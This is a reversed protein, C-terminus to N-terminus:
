KKKRTSTKKRNRKNFDSVCACCCFVTKNEEDILWGDAKAAKIGSIERGCNICKILQKSMSANEKSLMRDIECYLTM